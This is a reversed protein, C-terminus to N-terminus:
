TRDLDLKTRYVYFVTLWELPNSFRVAIIDSEHRVVIASLNDILLNSSDGKLKISLTYKKNIFSPDDIKIFAGTASINTIRGFSTNNAEDSLKVPAELKLRTTERREEIKNMLM